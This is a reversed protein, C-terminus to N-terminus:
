SKMAILVSDPDFPVPSSRFPGKIRAFGSQLLWGLIEERAYCRGRPTHLLLLVSFLTAWEPATRDRSMFVDRLILQGQPNLCSHLKQLLSRNEDIGHAHLVNSVFVNDLGRPLAERSFDMGVVRVRKVM